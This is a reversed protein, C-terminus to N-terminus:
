GLLLPGENCKYWLLVRISKLLISFDRQSHFGQPGVGYSSVQQMKETGQVSHNMGPCRKPQPSIEGASYIRDIFLQVNLPRRLTM